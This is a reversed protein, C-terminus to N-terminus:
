RFNYGCFLGIIMYFSGLTSIEDVLILWLTLIVKYCRIKKTLILNCSKSFHTVYSLRKKKQYTINCIDFFRLNLPHLGIVGLAYYLAGLLV